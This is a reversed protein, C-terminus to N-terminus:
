AGLKDAIFKFAKAIEKDPNSLAHVEPSFPEFSIPGMYGADILERIQDINGICDHEDVLGRDKDQMDLPALARDSVGSVEIIATLEPFIPAGTARGNAIFHHFTDHVLMFTGAGGVARIAEAAEAKHRLSCQEFGLPEIFGILGAENLLPKLGHLAQLLSAHRLGAAVGSGDNVPILGIGEAGIALATSILSKAQIERETNWENFRELQALGTIRMGTDFARQRVRELSDGEFLPRGLDNRYHIGMCGLTQAMSMFDDYRMAPCTMHNLARPLM